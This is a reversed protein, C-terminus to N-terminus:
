CAELSAPKEPGLLASLTVPFIPNSPSNEKPMRVTVEMAGVGVLQVTRSARIM